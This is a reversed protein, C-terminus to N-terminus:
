RGDHQEDHQQRNTVPVAVQPPTPNAPTPPAVAEPLNIVVPCDRPDPSNSGPALPLTPHPGKGCYYDQWGQEWADFQASSFTM